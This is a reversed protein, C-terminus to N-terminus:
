RGLARKASESLRAVTWPPDFTLQVRLDRVWPLQEIRARLDAGITQHMPCGPVTLTYLVEVKDVDVAVRYVLGLSVIDIGLEPDIVSGLAAVVEHARREEDVM